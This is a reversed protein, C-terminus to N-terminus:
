PKIFTNIHEEGIESIVSVYYLGQHLENINVITQNSSIETAGILSGEQNYIELGTIKVELSSIELQNESVLSVNPAFNKGSSGNGIRIGNNMQSFAFSSAFFLFLLFLTHRM